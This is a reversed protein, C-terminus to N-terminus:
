LGIHRLLTAQAAAQPEADVPAQDAVALEETVAPRPELLREVLQDAHELQGGHRDVHVLGVEVAVRLGPRDNLGVEVILDCRQHALQATRSLELAHGPRVPPAHPLCL